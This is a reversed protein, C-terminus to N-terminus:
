FPRVSREVGLLPQWSTVHRLQTTKARKRGNTYSFRWFSPGFIRQRGIIQALPQDSFGLFQYVVEDWPNSPCM